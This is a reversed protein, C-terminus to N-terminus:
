CVPLIYFNGQVFTTNPVLCKANYQLKISMDLRYVIDFVKTSEQQVKTSFRSTKYKTSFIIIDNYIDFFHCVHGKLPHFSDIRKHHPYLTFCSIESNLTLGFKFGKPCKYIPACKFNSKGSRLEKIKM